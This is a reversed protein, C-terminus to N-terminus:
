DESEEAEGDLAKLDEITCDFKEGCAPCVWDEPDVDIEFRVVEGCSPCQAEYYEEDEDDVDCGDCGECNGDCEFDEDDEDEDDGYVASEVDGLDEDLEDVYDELYQAEETLDAIEAAMDTVLDLLAALIKGEKTTKDLDLGEALGRIYAAKETLTLNKEEAM